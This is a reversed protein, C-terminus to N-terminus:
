GNNKPRRRESTAGAANRRQRAGREAQHHFLTASVFRGCCDDFVVFIEFHFEVKLPLRRSPRATLLSQEDFDGLRRAGGRAARARDGQFFRRACLEVRCNEFRKRDRCAPKRKKIGAFTTLCHHSLAAAAAISASVRLALAKKNAAGRGRSIKKPADGNCAALPASARYGQRSHHPMHLALACSQAPLRESPARGHDADFFVSPIFFFLHLFFYYFFIKYFNRIKETVSQHHYFLNTGGFLEAVTKEEKKGRGKKREKKRAKKKRFEHASRSGCRARCCVRRGGPLSWFVRMARFRRQSM